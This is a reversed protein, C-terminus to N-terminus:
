EWEPDAVYLAGIGWHVEGSQCGQLSVCGMAGLSGHAKRLSVDRVRGSGISSICKNNPYMVHM